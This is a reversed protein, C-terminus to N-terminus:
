DIINYKKYFKKRENEDSIVLKIEDTKNEEILINILKSLMAEGQALGQNLIDKAEYDLIKGGMIESVGNRVNNFNAAIKQVVRTTMDMITRKTYEKIQGKSLLNELHKNIIKYQQQLKKLDTMNTEYKPFDNEFNFIYFPLLFLLNKKFIYDLSYQKLKLIPIDYILDSAPTSIHYKMVDPTSSHYRLFIVSSYPFTVHFINDILVGTDLAIQADYEFMRIIMSGDPSSQCELHYKKTINFSIIICSDTICKDERGDQRNIFHENHLQLIHKDCPYTEKFLENILPIVLEPCDNILTRFADDYITGNDTM